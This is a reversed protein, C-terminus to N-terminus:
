RRNRYLGADVAAAMAAPDLGLGVFEAVRKAETLPDAVVQHYPLFLCEIYPTQAIWSKVKRLHVEFKEAMVGDPIDDKVGQRALMKKQSALVEEMRRELFIVRYRHGEPLNPLLLSIVKLVRGRMAPDRLWANDDKLKKIREDEFYGRPNDEDAVRTDDKVLELGGAELMRMMMSTGSRPLGSVVIVPKEM